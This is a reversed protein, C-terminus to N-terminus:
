ERLEQYIEYKGPKVTVEFQDAHPNKGLDGWLGTNGQANVGAIINNGPIWCSVVPNAGAQGNQGSMYEAFWSLNDKTTYFMGDAANEYEFQATPRHLLFSTSGDKEIRNGAIDTLRKIVEARDPSKSAPEPEKKNLLQDADVLEDKLILCLLLSKITRLSDNIQDLNDITLPKKLLSLIKTFKDDM